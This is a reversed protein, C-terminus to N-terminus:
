SCDCCDWYSSLARFECALLPAPPSSLHLFICAISWCSKSFSQGGPYSSPSPPSMCSAWTGPKSLQNPSSPMWQAPLLLDPLLSPSLSAWKLCILISIHTPCDYPFGMTFPAPLQLFFLSICGDGNAFHNLEGYDFWWKAKWDRSSKSIWNEM